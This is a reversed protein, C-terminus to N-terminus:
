DIQEFYSELMSRREAAPVEEGDNSGESLKAKYPELARCPHIGITTLFNDSRSALDLSVRADELYGAAFM